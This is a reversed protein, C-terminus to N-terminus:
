LDTVARASTVKQLLKKITKLNRPSWTIANEPRDSMNPVTSRSVCAKVRNKSFTDEMVKTQGEPLKKTLFASQM